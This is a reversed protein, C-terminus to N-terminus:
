RRRKMWVSIGAALISLPLLLVAVYAVMRGQSDTMTLRRDEPNKPRISIFSEDQALFTVSNLFLNGNGQTAFFGNSAFDSDGFVALRSKKNEAQDKSAVVAISVPGPLDLNVDMSVENSKANTEGWSRDSTNLLPDVTIGQVAPIAPQVSRALPFFTMVNFRETIKHTGYSSVLPIEPGAGFLRGVGSADVVFNNGVDISWKKMFENLGVAPAPDLLVLVSGGGQLYMDVNDLENPFPESVPGAIVLVSADDPVKGDRVLNVTKVLYNEKELGQRAMEYGTRESSNLQKEGHGETFYITKREGKVIKMLANTIDEERIPENQKEIREVKQGMELILTGYRFAEGSVPNQFDGYATVSYQQALQPQRDPDIFEFSVKNNQSSFLQLLDRTPQYDGGPYFAKIRLDEPVQGAVAISQESLSFFKEATMDVRKENRTGLYNVLVLIGLFLVVSTASNIGFRTSRRRLGSRIDSSKLGISILIVVSGIVIAATQYVTWISRVSWAMLSAAIIALGLIDAKKLFEKM